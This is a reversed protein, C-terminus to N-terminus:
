RFLFLNLGLGFLFDLAGLFIAVAISVGIVVLTYNITDNKTPWSVKAMEIKVEKFYNKVKDLNSM